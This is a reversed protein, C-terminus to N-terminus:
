EDGWSFKLGDTTKIAERLDIDGAFDMNEPALMFVKDSIRQVNGNLAYNCGCLFDTIRQATERDAFEVNVVVPKKERISRALEKAEKLSEPSSVVVEMQVNAQVNMVKTIRRGTDTAGDYSQGRYTDINVSRGSVVPRAAAVPRVSVPPAEMLEESDDEEEAVEEEYIDEEYENSFGLFEALKAGFNGM